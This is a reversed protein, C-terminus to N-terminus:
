NQSLFDPCSWVTLQSLVAPPSDLGSLLSLLTSKGSGSRGVIASMKGAPITFSLDRLVSVTNFQKSLNTVQVANSMFM